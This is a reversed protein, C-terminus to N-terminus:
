HLRAPKSATRSLKMHQALSKDLKTMLVDRQNRLLALALQQRDSESLAEIEEIQDLIAEGQDVLLDIQEELAWCAGHLAAAEEIPLLLCETCRLSHTRGAARKVVGSRLPWFQMPWKCVACGRVEDRVLEDIEAALQQESHTM